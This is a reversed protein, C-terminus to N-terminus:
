YIITSLSFSKEEGKEQWYITVTVKNVNLKDQYDEEIEVLKEFSTGAIGEKVGTTVTGLNFDDQKFKELESQALNIANNMMKSKYNANIVIGFVQAFATFILAILVLAVIVEILTFGQQKLKKRKLRWKNKKM